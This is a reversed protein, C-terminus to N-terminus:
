TPYGIFGDIWEIGGEKASCCIFHRAHEVEFTHQGIWSATVDANVVIAAAEDDHTAQEVDVLLAGTLTSLGFPLLVWCFMPFARRPVRKETQKPAKWTMAQLSALHKLRFRLAWCLVTPQRDFM